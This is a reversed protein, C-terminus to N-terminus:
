RLEGRVWKKTYMRSPFATKLFRDDGDRVYPVVWIYGDLEFLMLKQHSRRAHETIGVFKASVIEEFSMGRTRKLWEGKLPEWRISM